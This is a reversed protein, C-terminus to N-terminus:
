FSDGKNLHIFEETGKIAGNNNPYYPVLEKSNGGKVSLKQIITICADAEQRNYGSSTSVGISFNSVLLLIVVMM